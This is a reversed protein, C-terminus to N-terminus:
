IKKYRLLLSGKRNLKRINKLKFKKMLAKKSEFLSLGRGFVVPEITIYFEDLLNRELFYTYVQTGGLVAIKKYKLREFLKKISNEQPNYFLCRSNLIKQDVIKRTLVICNRQSLPKKATKYTNHGVVVVDSDDLVQHLFDLDEKSTWDSFHNKHLGIKGDISVAALAVITSKFM